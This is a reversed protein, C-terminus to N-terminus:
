WRYELGVIAGHLFVGARNSVSSAGTFTNSNPQDPALAVGEIWMVQYGARLKLYSTVNYTGVVGFEGVFSARTAGADSNLTGLGPVSLSGEFTTRAAFIGAKGGIDIGLRDTLMAAWNAGLQCGYLNNSTHIFTNVSGPPLVIGAIPTVPDFGANLDEHWNLYRFGALVSFQPTFWHRLGLEGNNLVSRYDARNNVATATAGGADVSVPAASFVSANMTYLGFYGFEVATAEGVPIGLIIRPGVAWDIDSGFSGASRHMLIADEQLYPLMSYGPGVSPLPPIDLPAQLLGGFDQAQALPVVWVVAILMAALSSPDLRM